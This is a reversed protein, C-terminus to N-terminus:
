HQHRDDEDRLEHGIEIRVAISVFIETGVKRQQLLMRVGDRILPYLGVAIAVLLVALPAFGQWYLVTILGVLGIRAIARQRERTLLRTRVDPNVPAESPM